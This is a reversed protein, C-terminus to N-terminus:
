KNIKSLSIFFSLTLMFLPFPWLSFCVKLQVPFGICSEIGLVWSWSQLQFCVRLWSLWRPTGVFLVKWSLKALWKIILPVNICYINDWNGKSYEQVTNRYKGMCHNCAYVELQWPIQLAWGQMLPYNQLATTPNSMHNAKCTSTISMVTSYFLPETKERKREAEPYCAKTLLAREVYSGMSSTM